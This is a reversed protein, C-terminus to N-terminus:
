SENQGSDAKDTHNVIDLKGYLSTMSEIVQATRALVINWLNEDVEDKNIGSDALAQGIGRLMNVTTESRGGEEESIMEAKGQALILATSGAWQTFWVEQRYKRIDEHIKTDHVEFQGVNFWTLETGLFNKLGGRLKEESLQENIISRPDLSIPAIVEDIVNRNIFNTLIGDLRFQTALGWPLPTGDVRVSRNYVMDRVAQASFPYPELATRHVISDARHDACIRYGFQFDRVAVEIGDKTTAIIPSATWHQDDLSLIEQVRQNRPVFHMGTGIVTESEELSELLVANGAGIYLWGPGGVRDLLSTEADEADIKGNSISLSPLFHGSPFLYPPGDFLSAFLYHVASSYSPLEYIDQLYRAGLLWAALMAAIPALFYRPMAFLIEEWNSIPEFWLAGLFAWGFVVLLMLIARILRISITEDFLVHDFFYLMLGPKSVSPDAVKSM